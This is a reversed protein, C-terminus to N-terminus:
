GAVAEPQAASEVAAHGNTGAELRVRFRSGRGCESELEITAGLREALRRAIALGLGHGQKRDRAHNQVQYFEDWIQEQQDPSIGVGSDIVDLVVHRGDATLRVLVEGRDTYKIANSVFNSLIREIKARDSHVTMAAPVDVELRLGKDKAPADYALVVERVLESVDFTSPRVPDQSWDLRGLELFSNLLGAVETACTRINEVAQRAGAADGQELQAHALETQLALGHLPNKLDHSVANLFFSKRKSEERAATLEESLQQTRNIERYIVKLDRAGWAYRWTYYALAVMFVDYLRWAPWVMKIPIFLYGCLGCFIFINRMRGLAQRAEGPPLSKQNKWWHFAIVTYGAAVSLDLVVTIMVWLLDHGMCHYLTMYQYSGGAFWDLVGRIVDM